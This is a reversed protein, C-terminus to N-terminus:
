SGHKKNEFYKRFAEFIMKAMKVAFKYKCILIVLCILISALTNICALICAALLLILSVIDAAYHMKLTMIKRSLFLRCLFTVIYGIATAIAAGQAGYEPILLFNLGINTIAGFVTTYFIINTKKATTFITGIFGSLGHFLTAYLLAPVFYWAAYFDKKLLLSAIPHLFVLILSSIVVLFNLYQEYTESFFSRNKETGFNDIASIEWAGTFINMTASMLAPIKYSVSYIGLESTSRYMKMIYRDSSDNIWWNMQNPILPCCYKLMQVALDKKVAWPPIIKRIIGTKMIVFIDVIALSIIMSVLYGILGLKVVLLLILNSSILLITQLVGAISYLKVDNIGRLFNLLLADIASFFYYLLFYPLYAKDLIYPFFIFSGIVLLTNGALEIWLGTSFVIYPDDKKELCFRLIATSIMFTFFPYALNSTTVLLDSIGYEETTLVSTYFPVLFFVLIKSAFQGVFMLASNKLLKNRDENVSMVPSM